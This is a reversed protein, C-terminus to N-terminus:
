WRARSSSLAEAQALLADAQEAQTLRREIAEVRSKALRAVGRDRDKAGDVLRRLAAEESVREAAAMRVPAHAANLAVEVLLDQDGIGEVAARLKEGDIGDLWRGLSEVVASRVQPEGDALWAAALAAGDGCRRAAAARVEPAPDAHLLQALEASEPPLEAVGLVRQAPEAHEHLPQRSLIKNLM